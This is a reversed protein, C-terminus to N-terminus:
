IQFSQAGRNDAAAYEGNSQSVTRSTDALLLKMEDIANNWKTKAVNYATQANGAWQSQLPALDQELTHMRNDIAQVGNYLDQAAQDLGAHNVLLGDFGSTM